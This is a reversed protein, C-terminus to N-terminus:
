ADGLAILDRAARAAKKFRRIDDRLHRVIGDKLKFSSVAVTYLESGPKDMKQLDGITWKQEIAVEAATIYDEQDEEPQEAVLWDFFERVTARTDQRGAGAVPSSSLTTRASSQPAITPPTGARAAPVTAAPLTASRAGLLPPVMFGTLGGAPQLQQARMMELQYRQLEARENNLAEDQEFKAMLSMLRRKEFRKELRQLGDDSSSSTRRKKSSRGRNPNVKLQNGQTRWYDILQIPPCAVSIGSTGELLKMAWSETDAATIKFHERTAQHVYCWYKFNECAQERCEWM